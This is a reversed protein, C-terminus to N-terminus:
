LLAERYIEELRRGAVELTFQSSFEQGERGKRLLFEGRKVYNMLTEGGVKPDTDVLLGGYQETEDTAHRKFAAVPRGCAFAEITASGENLRELPYPLFVLDSASYYPPLRRHQVYGHVTVSSSLGKGKVYDRLELEGPGWGVIHLACDKLGLRVAEDYIDVMLFPNKALGISHRSPLFTVSLINLKAADFGVTKQSETREMEHFVDEDFVPADFEKLKRRPVRLYRTIDQIESRYDGLLVAKAARLGPTLMVTWAMRAARGVPLSGGTYQTVTVFRSSALFSPVFFLSYYSSFHLIDMRDAAAEKVLNLTFTPGLLQRFITTYGAEYKRPRLIASPALITGYVPIRKVTHGFSHVYAKPLDVDLSPVYKVCTHGRRALALCYFDLYSEWQLSKEWPVFRGELLETVVVGVNM